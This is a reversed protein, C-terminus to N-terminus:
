EEKNEPLFRFLGRLLHRRTMTKKSAKDLERWPNFEAKKKGKKPYRKKPPELEAPQSEQAEALNSGTAEIARELTASSLNVAQEFQADRCTVMGRFTSETFDLAGAFRANDMSFDEEFECWRCSVKKEFIAGGLDVKKLFLCDEMSVDEKFITEQFDIGKEFDTDSLSLMASFVGNKFYVTETFVSDDIFVDVDAGALRDGKIICGEITLPSGVKNAFTLIDALNPITRQAIVLNRRGGTKKPGVLEGLEAIDFEPLNEDDENDNADHEEIEDDHM